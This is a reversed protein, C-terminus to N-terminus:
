VVGAGIGCVLCGELPDFLFNQSQDLFGKFDDVRCWSLIEVAEHKVVKLDLRGLMEADPAKGHMKEPRSVSFTMDADRHFPWFFM